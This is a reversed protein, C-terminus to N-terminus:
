VEQIPTTHPQMYYPKNCLLVKTTYIELFNIGPDQHVATCFAVFYNLTEYIVCRNSRYNEARLWVFYGCWFIRKKYLVM